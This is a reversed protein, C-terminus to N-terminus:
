PRRAPDPHPGDGAGPDASQQMPSPRCPSEAHVPLERCLRPRQAPVRLAPRHSYKYALAAITPVKAILRFAAIERQRRITSTSTTTTSPPWRASWAACSPWRTPTAASATSSAAAVARAGDHPLHRGQPIGGAAEANPLEGNLLLYCVEIFDSKSPSSSSRTAGTCCCARMATSIPSRAKAARPRATAPTSPSSASTPTSSASIPWTRASCGKLLPLSTSRNSGDLTFTITAKAAGSATSSM